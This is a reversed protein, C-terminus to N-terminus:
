PSQGAPAANSGVYKPDFRKLAEYLFRLWDPAVPDVPVPPLTTPSTAPTTSTRPPQTTLPKATVPPKPTAAVAVPPKAAAQARAGRLQMFEHSTYMSKGRYVVGVGIYTFSPDSLNAYHHPSKTFADMLQAVTPGVGVNEGVKQWDSTVAGALGPNHSIAGADAMKQAWGRAVDTLNADVALPGLGLNSRMQNIAVVFQQEDSLADAHAPAALFVLASLAATVFLGALRAHRM